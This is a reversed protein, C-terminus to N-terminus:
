RIKPTRNRHYSFIIYSRCEAWGTLLGRNPIQYIRLGPDISTCREEHNSENTKEDNGPLVRYQDRM